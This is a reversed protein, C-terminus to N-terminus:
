PSARRGRCPSASYSPLPPSKPALLGQASDRNGECFQFKAELDSESTMASLVPWPLPQFEVTPSRGRRLGTRARTLSSTLPSPKCAVPWQGPAPECRETTLEASLHPAPARLANTNSDDPAPMRSPCRAPAAQSCSGKSSPRIALAAHAPPAPNTPTSLAAPAM